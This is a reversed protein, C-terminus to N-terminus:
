VGHCSSNAAFLTLTHIDRGILLFFYAWALQRRHEPGGCPVCKRQFRYYGKLCRSCSMKGYGELCQDAALCPSIYDIKRSCRLFFEGNPPPLSHYLVKSLPPATGGACTAGKPCEHCTWGTRNSLPIMPGAAPSYYGKACECELLSRGSTLASSGMRQTNAPCTKCSTKRPEDQYTDRGQDACPM